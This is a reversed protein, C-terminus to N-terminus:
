RFVKQIEIIRLEDIAQRIEKGTLTDRQEDTLSAFRIKRSESAVQLLDGAIHYRDPFCALVATWPIKSNNNNFSDIRHLVDLVEASEAPDRQRTVELMLSMKRVANFVDSPVKLRHLLPEVRGFPVGSFIIAIRDITSLELQIARVVAPKTQVVSVSLEGFLLDYAGCSKLVSFFKDPEQEGMAKEFEAWVREPVLHDLEGSQVLESMLEVTSQAVEFGYRAAFRAARLVRVPDDAFANSVHRITGDRLDLQGSFPDVIDDSLKAHGLENWGIVERAMANITLDRRELDEELTISPNFDTEFGNYGASTKRETRALAYEDGSPALFVPFDAGVQNFGAEMMDAKTAGVVVFDHDKCDRQLIRDRVYGGCMYVKFKTLDLM